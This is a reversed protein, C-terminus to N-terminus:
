RQSDRSQPQQAAGDSSWTPQDRGDHQDGDVEPPHETQQDHSAGRTTMETFARRV